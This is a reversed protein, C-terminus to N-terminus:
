AEWAQLYAAIERPLKKERLYDQVFAAYSEPSPFHERVFARDFLTGLRLGVWELYNSHPWQEVEAVLGDKVPNAHIYRCLHLLHAPRAIRIVKYPGEFLTGTRGYRKNYAKTYSNFVRQAL